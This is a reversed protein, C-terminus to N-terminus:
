PSPRVDELFITVVKNMRLLKRPITNSTYKHAQDSHFM